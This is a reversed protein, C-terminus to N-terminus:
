QWRQDSVQDSFVTSIQPECGCGRGTDAGPVESVLCPRVWVLMPCLLRSVDTRLPPPLAAPWLHGCGLDRAARSLGPEAPVELVQAPLPPQVKTEGFSLAEQVGPVLWCSSVPDSAAM